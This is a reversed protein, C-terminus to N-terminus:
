QARVDGAANEPGGGQPAPVRWCGSNLLHTYGIAPPPPFRFRCVDIASFCRKESSAPSPFPWHRPKAEATTLELPRCCIRQSHPWRTGLPLPVRVLRPPPPFDGARPAHAGVTHCVGRLPRTAAGCAMGSSPARRPPPRCGAPPPPRHGGSRLSAPKKRWGRRPVRDSPSGAGEKEPHSGAARTLALALAAGACWHKLARPRVSAALSLGPDFFPRFPVHPPGDRFGVGRLAMVVLVLSFPGTACAIEPSRQVKNVLLSRKHPCAPPVKNELNCTSPAMCPLPTITIM